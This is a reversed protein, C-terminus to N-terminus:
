AKPIAAMRALVAAHSRIGNHFCIREFKENPSHVRDDSLGFGLLISDMGLMQNIAGVAPISGGSGILFADKGYIDRLGSIGAQLYASDTPVRVAPAAGLNKFDASFGKPLKSRIFDQVLAMIRDPDQDAVLRCSLKAFAERAIVTKAGPDTYGGWIGNVDLTPRAWQRELAGM